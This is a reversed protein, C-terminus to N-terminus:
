RAMAARPFVHSLRIGSKSIGDSMVVIVKSVDDRADPGTLSNIALKMGDGMNTGSNYKYHAVQRAFLTDEVLQLDDTLDVEHHAKKGFTELAMHDFESAMAILAAVGDKVAHLPQQPIATLDNNNIFSRNNVWSVYTKLGFRARFEIPHHNDDGRNAFKIYDIWTGVKHYPPHAIWSLENNDVKKDGANKPTWEALGLM